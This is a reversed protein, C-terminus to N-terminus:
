TTTSTLQYRNITDPYVSHLPSTGNLHALKDSDHALITMRSVLAIVLAAIFGTEVVREPRTEASESTTVDTFSFARVAGGESASVREVSARAGAPLLGLRVTSGAGGISTDSNFYDPIYSTLHSGFANPPVVTALWVFRGFLDLVAAGETGGSRRICARRGRSYIGGRRGLNTTM